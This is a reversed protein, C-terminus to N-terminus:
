AVNWIPSEHRHAPSKSARAEIVVRGKAYEFPDFEANPVIGLSRCLALEDIGVSSVRDSARVIERINWVGAGSTLSVIIHLMNEPTGSKMEFGSLLEDLREIESGSEAGAYVIGKLGPGASAELDAFSAGRDTLVFM